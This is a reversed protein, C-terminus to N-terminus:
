DKAPPVLASWWEQALQDAAALSDDDPRALRALIAGASPQAAPLGAILEKMWRPDLSIPSRDGLARRIVPTDLGPVFDALDRAAMRALTTAGRELRREVVREWASAPRTAG